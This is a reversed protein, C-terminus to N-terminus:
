SAPTAARKSKTGPSRPPSRPTTTAACRTHAVTTKAPNRPTPPCRPPGPAVGAGLQPDDRLTGPRVPQLGIGLDFPEVPSQGLPGVSAEIRRLGRAPRRQRPPQVKVIMM